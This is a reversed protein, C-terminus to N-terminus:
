QAPPTSATAPAPPHGGIVKEIVSRVKSDRVARLLPAAAGSRQILAETDPLPIADNWPGVVVFPLAFAVDNPGNLLSATGKLDLDRGPISAGGELAIRVSAGDVTADEVTVAGNVIKLAVNLKDYPTRGNRLDAGSLPRRELRRLVQEVNMGALSGQQSTLTVTGSLNHTLNLVSAGSGELAINLNGKGEIRRLGILEGLCADLDVDTFQMDSKVEAGAGSKALTLSGTIVGNFAQAEGVTVMLKGGRLSAAVATRGVQLRGIRVRAASLRLDLAFGTLGELGIPMPDWERANDNTLRVASVYPSLDLDGAALTGQWTRLGNAAYTLVGEAANGDLEVNVGSLAIASGVMRAQGKLTFRGFGGDPVPTDGTWRLADRLSPAQASLTGDVKLSPTDSMVGEFALALPAAGLRLKLGSGDGTLAALFDTITVSADVPENRWWFTGAAGFTRSISPWALSLDVKTLNEVLDNGADEITIAGNEVRIETFAAARDAPKLANALSALLPSWNSRGDPAIAVSIRPHDLVISAIEIRGMLLPVIRLQAILREAALPPAKGDADGLVVDALSVTGSPFLSVDVPGRLVPDLGTVARIQAKVAERAGDASVLLSAGSLFAAGAATVVGAAILLRKLGTAATM